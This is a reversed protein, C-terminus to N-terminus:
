SFTIKRHRIFVSQALGISFLSVLLSTGGSSLFPLPIGAVPLIGMNMGVNVLVHFFLMAAIGYVMLSGFNDRAISGIEVLRLILYSLLGLIIICGTFGFSEAIGAFIFDTEVEPLFKLQSQLGKGLGKGTLGGSGITIQAQRVNYGSDTPYKAPDLFVSIRDRQYQKMMSGFPQIDKYALFVSAFFIFLSTFIIALQIKTPKAVLLMILYIFCLVMGTGMDPEKLILFLPFAMMAFSFLFDRWRLKGVKDSFFSALSIILSIKAVESPQLQFYRLDIWNMAGNVTKGFLGVYLLLLISILYFIWFFGKYLRYDVFSVIVALSLGIMAIIGQKLAIGSSPSGMVLSYIVAVGVAILLIPIIVIRWDMFDARRNM